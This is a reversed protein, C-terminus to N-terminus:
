TTVLQGKSLWPEWHCQAFIHQHLLGPSYTVAGHPCFAGPGAAVSFRLFDLFVAGKYFMLGVASSKLFTCGLASGACAHLVANFTIRNVKRVPMEAMIAVARQWLRANACATIMTNCTIVDPRIPGERELSHGLLLAFQWCATQACLDTITNYTAIDLESAGAKLAQLFWWAKQWQGFDEFAALYSNHLTPSPEHVLDHMDLLQLATTWQGRLSRMVTVYIRSSTALGRFLVHKLVLHKGFHVCPM